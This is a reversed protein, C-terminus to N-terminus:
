NLCPLIYLLIKIIRTLFLQLLCPHNSVPVQLRAYDFSTESMKLVVSGGSENTIAEVIDSITIFSEYTSNVPIISISVDNSM